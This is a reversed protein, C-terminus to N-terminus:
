PSPFSASRSLVPLASRCMSSHIWIWLCPLSLAGQPLQLGAMFDTSEASSDDCQFDSDHDGILIRIYDGDELHLPEIFDDAILNNNFWLRCREGHIDLLSELDLMRFVSRRNITRPLWKSFRRFAGPLIENPEYIEMDVLVLRLFPSPRREDHLQPLSCHLNQSVLDEPRALVNHSALVEDPLIGIAQAIQHEITDEADNSLRAPFMRGDLLILVTRQWVVRSSSSPLSLSSSSTMSSPTTSAAASRRFPGPRRAMFSTLDDAECSARLNWPKEPWAALTDHHVRVAHFEFDNDMGLFVQVMSDFSVQHPVAKKRLPLAFVDTRLDASSGLDTAVESALEIARWESLFDREFTISHSWHLRAAFPDLQAVPEIPPMPGQYAYMTTM